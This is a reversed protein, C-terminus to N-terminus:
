HPRTMQQIAADLAREMEAIRSRADAAQAQAAQLQNLLESERAARQQEAATARELDAKAQQIANELQDHMQPSEWEPATRGSELRKMNNSIETLHGASGVGQARVDNYQQSLRAVAADQLLLEGIALQARAGLLTSREIALRLERVETLLTELTHSDSAAPQAYLFVALISFLLVFRYSM